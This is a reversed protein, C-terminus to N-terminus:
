RPINCAWSNRVPNCVTYSDKIFLSRDHTYYLDRFYLRLNSRKQVYYQSIVCELTFFYITPYHTFIINVKDNRTDNFTSWYASAM